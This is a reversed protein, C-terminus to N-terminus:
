LTLDHAKHGHTGGDEGEGLLVNQSTSKQRCLSIGTERRRIFVDRSSLSPTGAFNKSSVKEGGHLLSRTGTFAPSLPSCAIISSFTVGDKHFAM